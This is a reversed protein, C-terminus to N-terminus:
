STYSSGLSQVVTCDSVTSILDDHGCCARTVTKLPEVVILAALCISTVTKTPWAKSRKILRPKQTDAFREERDSAVQDITPTAM